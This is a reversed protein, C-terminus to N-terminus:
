SGLMKQHRTRRAVENRLAFRFTECSRAYAMSMMIPASDTMERFRKNEIAQGGKRKTANEPTNMKL